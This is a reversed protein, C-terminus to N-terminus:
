IRTPHQTELDAILDKINFDASCIYFNSKVHLLDVRTSKGLKHVQAEANWRFLSGAIFLVYSVFTDCSNKTSLKKSM